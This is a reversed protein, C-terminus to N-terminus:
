SEPLKTKGRGALQTLSQAKYMSIVLFESGLLSVKSMYALAIPHTAMPNESVAFITLLHVLMSCHTNDQARKEGRGGREEGGEGREGGRGGEGWGGREGRERRGGGRVRRGGGRMRRGGGRM